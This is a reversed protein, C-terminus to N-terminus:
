DQVKKKIGIFARIMSHTHLLVHIGNRFVFPDLGHCLHVEYVMYIIYVMYRCLSKMGHKVVSKHADENGQCRFTKCRVYM